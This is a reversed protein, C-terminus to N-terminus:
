SDYIDAHEHFIDAFLGSIKKFAELLEPDFHEPMTRGDGKTIISYSQAQDFAPKYPRKSRLADYQDSINMIRATLPIEEEKLQKPYGDGSWREHHYLAIDIAMQLFPSESGKLIKAGIETHTKMVQFEQENLPSPKLLISDPIAVKGIDHMPSAYFISDCFDCSMGIQQALAETYFSIRKIHSGTDEDKFESALTLRHVTDIYGTRLQKTREQVLDELHSQYLHLNMHNRVRSAVIPPSIPKTIYDVAGFELGKTEDEIESQATVFLVPINTTKTKSKLSKCVQYGDMDPMKVDLLILDPATASSAIELAHAGNTAVSINYADKLIDNLIRINATEDDVILVRRKEPM